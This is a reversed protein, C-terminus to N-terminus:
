VYVGGWDSHLTGVKCCSHLTGVKCCSINEAMSVFQKLCMFVKSKAKMPYVWAHRSFDDIFTMFYLHNGFSPSEMPGCVDSHILQLKGVAAWVSGDKLFSARQMKGLICDECVHRSPAQLCPLSSVM